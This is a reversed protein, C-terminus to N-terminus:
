LRVGNTNGSPPAATMRFQTLPASAAAWGLAAGAALFLGALVKTNRFM